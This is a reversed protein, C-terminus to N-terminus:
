GALPRKRSSVGNTPSSVGNTPSRQFRSIASAITKVSRSGLGAKITEEDLALKIERAIEIPGSNPHDKIYERWHRKVIPTSKSHKAQAAATSERAEQHSSRILAPGYQTQQGIQFCYAMIATLSERASERDSDCLKQLERDIWTMHADLSFEIDRLVAKEENTLRVKPLNKYGYDKRKEATLGPTASAGEIAEQLLATMKEPTDIRRRLAPNNRPTIAM